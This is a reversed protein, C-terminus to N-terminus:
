VRHLWAPTIATGLGAGYAFYVNLGALPELYRANRLAGADVVEFGMSHALEGVAAKAQADDGAVFIQVTRGGGFDAGEALVQAFLTNFAKVIRAQPLAAALAEAASGSQGITLGMYDPTLPNTIDLVIQGRGLDAQRLAAAAAEYPTAIIVIDSGAAPRGSAAGYQAALAHAKAANRGLVNVQHGARTLQKVFAGAMNGSGIVTINM